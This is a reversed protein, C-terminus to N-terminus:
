EKFMCGFTHNEIEGGRKKRMAKSQKQYRSKVNQDVTVTFSYCKDFSREKELNFKPQLRYFCLIRILLVSFCGGHNSARVTPGMARAKMSSEAFTHISFALCLFVCTSIESSFVCYSVKRVCNANPLSSKVSRARHFFCLKIYNELAKPHRESTSLLNNNRCNLYTFRM